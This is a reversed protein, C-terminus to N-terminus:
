FLFRAIKIFRFFQHTVVNVLSMLRSVFRFSAACSYICRAKSDADRATSRELGLMDDLRCPRRIMREVTMELPVIGYRSLRETDVM